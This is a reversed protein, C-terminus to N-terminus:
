RSDFKLSSGDFAPFERDDKVQSEGDKWEIKIDPPAKINLRIGSSGPKIQKVEILIDDGIRIETGPKIRIFLNGTKSM